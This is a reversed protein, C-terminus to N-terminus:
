RYEAITAEVLKKIEAKRAKEAADAEGDEPSDIVAQVIVLMMACVDDTETVEGAQLEGRLKRSAEKDEYAFNEGLAPAAEDYAENIKEILDNWNSAVANGYTFAAKTELVDDWEKGEWLGGDTEEHERLQTLLTMAETTSYSKDVHTEHHYSDDYDNNFDDSAKGDDYLFDVIEDIFHDAMDAADDQSESVYNDPKNREAEALERTEAAKMDAVLKDLPILWQSYKLAFAEFTVKASTRQPPNPRCTLHEILQRTEYNM